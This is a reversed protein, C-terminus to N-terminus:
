RDQRRRIGFFNRFGEFLRGINRTRDIDADGTLGIGTRSLLVIGRTVSIAAMALLPFSKQWERRPYPAPLLGGIAVLLQEGATFFAPENVYRLEFGEVMLRESRQNGVTREDGGKLIMAYVPAEAALNGFRHRLRGM